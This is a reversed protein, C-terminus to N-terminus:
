HLDDEQDDYFSENIADVMAQIEEPVANVTHCKGSAMEILSQEPDDDAPKISEIRRYNLLITEGTNLTLPVFM